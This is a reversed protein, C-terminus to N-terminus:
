VCVTCMMFISVKSIKTKYDQFLITKIPMIRKFQIDIEWLYICNVQIIDFTNLKFYVFIQFAHTHLMDFIYRGWLFVFIIRFTDYRKCETLNGNRQILQFISNNMYHVLNRTTKADIKSCVNLIADKLQDISHFQKNNAHIKRM